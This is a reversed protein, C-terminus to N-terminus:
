RAPPAVLEEFDLDFETGTVETLVKAWAELDEPPYHSDYDSLVMFPEVEAPIGSKEIVLQLAEDPNEEIWENAKTLAAVYREVVEPNDRAWAGDGIQMAQHIPDGVVSIPDALKVYGESLLRTAVPSTVEAAQVRGAELADPMNSTELQVINVKSLDIGQRKLLAQTALNLNGGISPAAITKGVLDELKTVGADPAALLTTEQLSSKEVRTGSVVVLDLGSRVANLFVPETSFAVDYQRGVLNPAQALSTTTLLNLEANIGEEEFFGERDAVFVPLNSGSATHAVRVTAVSDQNATDTNDANEENGGCGAAVLTMGVALAALRFRGNPRREPRATMGPADM